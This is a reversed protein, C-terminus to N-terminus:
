PGVAREVRGWVQRRTDDVQYFPNIRQQLGAGVEVRTVFPNRFTKEFEAGIRRRGGWSAPFSLRSGKGAVDVLAARVGYTFGYGDEGDLIPMFMLNKPGRRRVIRAPGSGNHPIQITAAGEDVVIVIVIQSPDDISAFRKLVDVKEFRHAAKLRATIDGITTASVPAGITVGALKVIEDDPTVENGHVRIEAIVETQSTQPPPAQVSFTLALLLISLM